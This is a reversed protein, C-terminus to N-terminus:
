RRLSLPGTSCSRPQVGIGGAHPPVGVHSHMPKQKQVPGAPATPGARESRPENGARRPRCAHRLVRRWTPAFRKTIGVQEFRRTAIDFRLVSAFSTPQSPPGPLYLNGSGKFLWLAGGFFAFPAGPGKCVEASSLLTVVRSTVDISALRGGALEAYLRGEGTGAIAMASGAYHAAPQGIPKLTWSAIDVTALGESRAVDGGWGHNDAAYLVPDGVRQAFALNLAEFGHQHPAFSTSTCQGSHSDISVIGGGKSAAWLVGKGDVAISRPGDQDLACGIRPGPHLRHTVPDFVFIDSREDFVYVAHCADPVTPTPMSATAEPSAPGPITGSDFGPKDLTTRHCSADCALVVAVATSGALRRAWPRPFVTLRLRMPGITGHITSAIAERIWCVVSSASTQRQRVVLEFAQVLRPNRIVRLLRVLSAEFGRGRPDCEFVLACVCFPAAM